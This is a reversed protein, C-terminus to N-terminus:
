LKEVKEMLASEKLVYAIRTVTKLGGKITLPIKLSRM